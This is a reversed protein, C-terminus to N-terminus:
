ELSQERRVRFESTLEGCDSGSDGLVRVSAQDEVHEGKRSDTRAEHGHHVTVEPLMALLELSSPCEIGAKGAELM